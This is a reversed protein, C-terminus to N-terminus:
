KYGAARNALIRAKIAAVKKCADEFSCGSKQMVAIEYAYRTMDLGKPLKKMYSRM